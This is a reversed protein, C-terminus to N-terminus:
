CITDELANLGDIIIRQCALTIDGSTWYEEEEGLASTELVNEVALNIIHDDPIYNLMQYFKSRVENKIEERKESYSKDCYPCYDLCDTCKGFDKIADFDHGYDGIDYLVGCEPCTREQEETITNM